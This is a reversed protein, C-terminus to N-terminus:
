FLSTTIRVGRSESSHEPPVAPPHVILLPLTSGHLVRETVSGSIWRQLGSRGHTTLAIVSSALSAGTTLLAGHTGIGGGSEASQILAEAVDTCEEVSWSIQPAAASLERLLKTRVAQLYDGAERLATQRFTFNSELMAGFAEEMTPTKVMYQLHLEGKEPESLATLLHAAPLLAAEAFSSGDLAVTVRLAHALREKLSIERERLLLVPVPSHRAVHQAVSGVAWRKFGTFGHSCIIISDIAEEHAVDLITQAAPGDYVAIRTEMLESKLTHAINALYASARALEKERIERVFVTGMGAAYLGFESAIDVARLLLLSGGRAKALHAAVPLAQEARESGDLPVLIRTLM